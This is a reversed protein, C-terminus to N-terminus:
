VGYRGTVINFKLTAMGVKGVERFRVKQIHVEVEDTTEALDRWVCICNDAKNRWHAAGSIDYPSPVPYNGDLGKQLKTPHAVVWIHLGYVRAFRRIKTLCDSIHETETLGPPRSHDLENWPDLVLGKIGYRLVAIKAKSLIAEVTLENDPPLIFTFHEQLWYKGIKLEEPTLRQSPGQSFPLGLYKSMLGAIHRQLPQNEPSFIAFRWDQTVALNVLMADLWTSKGHGPVGTIVTWEGTKVTYYQDVSYWGTSEGGKLGHEYLDDIENDLDQVEFIGEVPVPSVRGIINQLAKVGLKVLVENADKCGEPWKVRWCKEPGFRRILEAELTHGPADNDVALIIRDLSNILEECNQIYEFKAKFSSAGPSPAGDPVSMCEKFGAEEFSLKDIEGEVIIAWDDVDDYGYFIKEADKCQRFNKKGDRYKINVVEGNRYFPFSIADVEKSEAPMYIKDYGIKNREIVAKSIGRGKFWDFVRDAKTPTPAVPRTYVKQNSNGSLGGSWGCHHCNFVGETIDVSLCKDNHKRRSGSCQPCTTKEQGSSGRISIGYDSFTKM